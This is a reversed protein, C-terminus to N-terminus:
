FRDMIDAITEKVLPDPEKLLVSKLLPIAKEGRQAALAKIFTRRVDWHVHSLLKEANEDIWAEGDQALIEIAAKVVEEDPNELAKKMIPAVNDGGIEAVTELAAILELGQANELAEIIVPLAEESGLRGLSRLAACKVWSDEDKLALLLPALVEDGGIEGLAGAVACRVEADEDALAMILYPVCGASKLAALSMVAAKRVVADEDKILLSLKEDDKLAAFLMASSHRKGSVNAGALEAAVRVVAKRDGEALRSLASIAAEQEEPAGNELLLLIDDILQTLGAKGAASMSIKRLEPSRDRMGDRLLPACAEYKLEGCVYAIACREQDDAANFADVLSVMGAAGVMALAELCRKRLREDHCGRVLSVAARSDGILGLTRVMAEKVDVDAGDLAAILSEVLSSGALGRLREDVLESALEAPLRDRMKMLATIAAERASKAKENFGQLLFHTSDAGGIAGICDFVAKKLLTEGLLPVVVDIPMPKGIKGLAELVTFRLWLDNKALAKVLHPIAEPDGIKGLNEAAAASVNPDRDDLGKILFPVAAADGINGLVDVVFKRVDHDDDNMHLSLVPVALSGLRELAEVASNRLGANDQSALMAVLTEMREEDVVGALFADVAEKRVRWSGDGMATVLSEKVENWPFGALGVVARRRVEEDPSLLQETLIERKEVALELNSVANMLWVASTIGYGAQTM